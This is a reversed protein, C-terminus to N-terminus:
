RGGRYAISKDVDMPLIQGAVAKRVFYGFFGFTVSCGFAVMIAFLRVATVGSWLTQGVLWLGWLATGLAVALFLYGFAGGVASKLSM